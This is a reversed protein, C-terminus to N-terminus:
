QPVPTEGWIVEKRALGLVQALDPRSLLSSHGSGDRMGRCCGGGSSAHPSPGWSGGESHTDEQPPGSKEAAARRIRTTGSGGPSAPSPCGDM